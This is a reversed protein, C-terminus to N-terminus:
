ACARLLTRPSHTKENTLYGRAFLTEIALISEQTQPLRNPSKKILEPFNILGLDKESQLQRSPVVPYRVDLMDIQLLEAVQAGRRGSAFPLNGLIYWSKEVLALTDRRCFKTTIESVM